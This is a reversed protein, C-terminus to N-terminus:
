GKTQKGMWIRWPKGPNIFGHHAAFDVGISFCRGAPRYHPRFANPPAQIGM